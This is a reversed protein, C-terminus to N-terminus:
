YKIFNFLSITVYINQQIYNCSYHCSLIVSSFITNKTFTKEKRIDM